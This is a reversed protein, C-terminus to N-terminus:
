CSTRKLKTTNVEYRHDDRQSYQVVAKPPEKAPVDAPAGVHQHEEQNSPGGKLDKKTQSLQLPKVPSNETPKRKRKAGAKPTAPKSRLALKSPSQIQIEDDNFGDGLAGDKKKKPTGLTNEKGLAKKVATKSNKQQGNRQEAERALDNEIFAKDTSVKQLETKYRQVEANYKALEDARLKREDALRKEEDQKEKLRNARVIAIEGTKAFADSKAADYDRKLRENARALEELKAQLVAPNDPQSVSQSTIKPETEPPLRHSFPELGKSISNVRQGAIAQQLHYPQSPPSAKHHLQRWPEGPTREKSPSLHHLQSQLLNPQEAATDFIEGDLMEDDFDGYDSSPQQQTNGGYDDVSLRDFAGINGFIAAQKVSPAQHHQFARPQQTSRIADQQLEHFAHIPLADLDDDSYGDDEEIGDM